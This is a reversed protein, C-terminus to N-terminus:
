MSGPAFVKKTIYDDFTILFCDGGPVTLGSGPDMYMARKQRRLWGFFVFLVLKCKQGSFRFDGTPFQKRHGYWWFVVKLRLALWSLVAVKLFRTIPFGLLTYVLRRGEAAVQRKKLSIIMSFRKWFSELDWSACALLHLVFCSIAMSILGHFLCWCAFFTFSVGPAALGKGPDMYMARKASTAM